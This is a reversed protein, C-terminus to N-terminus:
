RLGAARAQGLWPHDPAFGPSFVVLRHEAAAAPTFALERADYIRTEIGFTALLSRVGQGSM